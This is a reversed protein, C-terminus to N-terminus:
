RVRRQIPIFMIVWVMEHRIFYIVIIHNMLKYVTKFSIYIPSLHDPTFNLVMEVLRGAVGFIWDM